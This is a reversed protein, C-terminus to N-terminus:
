PKSCEYCNIKVKKKKFILDDTKKVIERKKCKNMLDIIIVRSTAKLVQSKIDELANQLEQKSKGHDKFLFFSKRSERFVSLRGLDKLHQYLELIADENNAIDGIQFVWMQKRVANFISDKRQKNEIMNKVIESGAETVIEIDSKETPVLQITKEQDGHHGDDMDHHEQYYWIVFGLIAIIIGGIVKWKTDISAKKTM